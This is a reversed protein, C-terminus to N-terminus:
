GARGVYMYTGGVKVCDSVVVTTDQSLDAHGEGSQAEDLLTVLHEYHGIRRACKCLMRALCRVLAHRCCAALQQIPRRNCPFNVAIPPAVNLTKSSDPAVM